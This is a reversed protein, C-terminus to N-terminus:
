IVSLDSFKTGPPDFDIIPEVFEQWQLWILVKRIFLNLFNKVTDNRFM